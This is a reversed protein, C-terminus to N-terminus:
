PSSKANTQRKLQYRFAQENREIYQKYGEPDIFPNRESGNEKRKMKELMSFASGHAALFVDCPLKRLVRFTQEYDDAVTPHLPNGVLKYGPASISGAFVVDFQETGENTKMTWTTCGKTHGPTLHATLTVDGLTIKDGDSLITDAKIGPYLFQDGFQPDDKGGRALMEADAQSAILKAKILQKLSAMGGVHDYHAHSILLYKIDALSFGLEEVNKQIQPVTQEFGSDLLILGKNSVILFSSVEKAGVYYINGIVRYPKVPENWSRSEEDIQAAVHMPYLAIFCFFTLLQLRKCNM